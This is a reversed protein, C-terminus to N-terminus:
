PTPANPTRPPTLMDCYSLRVSALDHTVVDRLAAPICGSFSNGSLRLTALDTLYGLSEPIRGTLQNNSLDLTNLARLRELGAPITGNLNSSPLAVATVRLPTGTLTIGTWDAIALDRSWNLTATGRLEDKSDLLASCDRMLPRNAATNEVATARACAPVQPPQTPSGGPHDYAGTDRYFQTLQNADTVLMPLDVGSARGQITEPAVRGGYDALRQTQAASVAETFAPLTMELAALHTPYESPRFRRWYDRAPHVAKVTGEELLQVDWTGFVQWVETAHNHSPGLFLIVERGYLGADNWPGESLVDGEELYRETAWLGLDVWEDHTREPDGAWSDERYRMFHVMVTLEPPGSGLVYSNVRVDAYCQMLLSNQFYGPEEYSPMHFPNDRTCRVSDPIYTGRLVIHSVFIFSNGDLYERVTSPTEGSAASSSTAGSVGSLLAVNPECPDM